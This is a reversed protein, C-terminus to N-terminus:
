SENAATKDIIVYPKINVKNRTYSYLGLLESLEKYLSDNQVKNVYKCYCDDIVKKLSEADIKYIERGPIVQENKLKLKVCSEILLSNQVIAFYKLDVEKIRGVNYNRLRQVINLTHGIKFINKNREDIAFFYISDYGSFTKLDQRNEMAQYILNQNQTLFERLKVFYLRVVESQESDGNMALREFCPYNLMYTLSRGKGSGRIKIYDVNEVYMQKKSRSFINSLRKRITMLIVGLYKAVDSDKIHFELEGGIRFNKFFTDIFDHDITTHKKLLTVLISM